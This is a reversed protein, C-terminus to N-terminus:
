RVPSPNAWGPTSGKSDSGNSWLGRLGGSRIALFFLMGWLGYGVAAHVARIPISLGSLVTYIGLGVQLLAVLCIARAVGTLASRTKGAAIAIHIFLGLLMFGWWRHVFAVATEFGFPVPFFGDLCNPFQSCALGAHGHRVMAGLALQVLFAGLGAISLRKLKENGPVVMQDGWQTVSAVTILGGFVLHAIILHVTSATLSLGLMVTLGGLLIQTLLLALLSKGSKKLAANHNTSTLVKYVTTLIFITATFALVRHGWEFIFDLRIPPAVTGHCLPWDPCALGSGTSSVINGWAMLIYTLGVTTWVLKRMFHSKANGM